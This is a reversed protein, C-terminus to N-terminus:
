VSPVRLITGPELLQVDVGPNLDAIESWRRADGLYNVAVLDIRDGPEIAIELTGPVEQEATVDPLERPVVEWREGRAGRVLATPLGAYRSLREAHEIALLRKGM